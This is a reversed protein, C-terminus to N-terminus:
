RRPTLGNLILDVVFECDEGSIPRDYIMVPLCVATDIVDIVRVADVGAVCEGRRVARQVVESMRLDRKELYTPRSATLDWDEPKVILADVLRRGLPSSIMAAYSKAYALLDGRLSGTDPIPIHRAGFGRLAATLLEASSPWRQKVAALEVGARAATAELTFDGFSTSALETLAAALIREEVADGTM